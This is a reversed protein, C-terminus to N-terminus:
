GYDFLIKKHFIIYSIHFTYPFDKRIKSDINKAAM